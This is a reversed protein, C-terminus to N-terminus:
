ASLQKRRRSGVVGGLMAVGLLALMGPEPTGTKTIAGLALAGTNVFQIDGSGSNSAVFSGLRNGAHTLNM